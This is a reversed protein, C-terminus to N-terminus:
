PLTYDQEDNYGECVRTKTQKKKKKQYLPHAQDM